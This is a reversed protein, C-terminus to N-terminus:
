ENQGEDPIPLGMFELFETDLEEEDENLKPTTSNAKLKEPLRAMEAMEEETLPKEPKTEKKYEARYDTKSREVPVVKEDEDLTAITIGSIEPQHLFEDWDEALSKKAQRVESNSMKRIKDERWCIDVIMKSLYPSDIEEPSYGQQTLTKYLRQFSEYLDAPAMVQFKTGGDGRRWEGCEAKWALIIDRTSPKEM